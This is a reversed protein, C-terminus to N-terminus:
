LSSVPWLTWMLMNIDWAYAVLTGLVLFPGFPIESKMTFGRGPLFLLLMSPFFAIWFALVLASLGGAFGLFWGIGAALKADGLGMARGGSLFWLAAFPAALLPGAAFELWVPLPFGTLKTEGPSLMDFQWKLLLMALAIAALILALRDPIIKHKWDYVTIALLVAWATMTLLALAATEWELPRVGFLFKWGVLVFLAGTALEVFPYQLSLRTGCYACRGGQVIFSFLPVLMRPALTKGCSLCKSRGGFGAGSHYRYLVVNLFSGVALGLTFLLTALIPFPVPM